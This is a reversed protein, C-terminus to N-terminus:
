EMGISLAKNNETDIFTQITVLLKDVVWIM